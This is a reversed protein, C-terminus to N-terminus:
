QQNNGYDVKRFPFSTENFRVQNHHISKQVRPRTNSDTAFGLNIGEFAKTAYKGPGQRDKHFTMFASCRFERFKSLNKPRGYVLM